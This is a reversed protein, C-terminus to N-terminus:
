NGAMMQSQQNALMQQRYTPNGFGMATATTGLFGPGQQMGPPAGMAPPVGEYM